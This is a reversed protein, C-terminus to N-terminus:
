DGGVWIGRRMWEWGRAFSGASPPRHASPSLCRPEKGCSGAVARADIASGCEAGGAEGVKGVRALLEKVGSAKGGLVNLRGETEDGGFRRGGPALIGSM